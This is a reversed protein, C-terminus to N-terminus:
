RKKKQQIQDGSMFYNLLSHTKVKGKKRWCCASINLNIGNKLEYLGVPIISKNAIVSKVSKGGDNLQIDYNKYFQYTSGIELNKCFDQSCGALPTIAILKFGSM